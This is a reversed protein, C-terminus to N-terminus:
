FLILLSVNQDPYLTRTLERMEWCGVKGVGEGVLVLGVMGVLRDSWGVMCCRVVKVGVGVLM